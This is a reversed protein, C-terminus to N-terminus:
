PAVMSVFWVKANDLKGLQVSLDFRYIPDTAIEFAEEVM